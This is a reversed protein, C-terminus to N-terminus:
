ARHVRRGAVIAHPQQDIRVPMRLLGARVRRDARRAAHDERVFFRALVQAVAHVGHRRLAAENGDLRQRLFRSGRLGHAVLARELKAAPLDVVSVHRRCM